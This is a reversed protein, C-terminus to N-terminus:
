QAQGQNIVYDWTFDEREIEIYRLLLNYYGELNGDFFPGPGLFEGNTDYRYGGTSGLDYSSGDSYLLKIFYYM